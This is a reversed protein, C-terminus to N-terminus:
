LTYGDPNQALMSMLAVTGTGGAKNEVIVPQGLIKSLSSALARASLSMYGGPAFGVLLTVPRDPYAAMAQGNQFVGCVFLVTFTIAVRLWFNKKM